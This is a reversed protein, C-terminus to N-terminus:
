LINAFLNKFFHLNILHQDLGDNSVNIWIFSKNNRIFISLLIFILFSFILTYKTILKITEKKKNM